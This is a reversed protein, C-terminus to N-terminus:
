LSHVFYLIIPFPCVQHAKAADKLPYIGGIAVRMQSEIMWNFLETVYGEYAERTAIYGPLHPRSLKINKPALKRNWGDM